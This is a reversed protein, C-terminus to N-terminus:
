GITALIMFSTKGARTSRTPDGEIRIVDSQRLSAVADNFKNVDVIEGAITVSQSKGRGERIKIETILASDGPLREALDKLVALLSPRQLLDPSVRAADSLVHNRLEEMALMTQTGGRDNAPRGQKVIEAEPFTTACLDWIQQGLRETEAVNARYEIVCQGIYGALVLALLAGSFALRSVLGRVASAPALPGKLFEFAVGGGAAAVAVGAPSEFKSLGRAPADGSEPASVPAVPAPAEEYAVPTPLKSEFEERADGELVVGRLTLNLAVGSEKWSTQFARLSNGIERAVASPRGLFDAAGYPLGRFFVLRRGNLVTLISDEGRVHVVAHLGATRRGSLWLTALGAVDLSIGEPAVGAARMAEVQEAIRAHPLGVALVQTEAGSEDTVVYDVILDDLPVALFPELEFPVAAAVRRRGKFPVKLARAIGQRCEVSLVFVAPRKKLQSVLAAVADTLGQPRDEPATYAARTEHTELVVPQRGGTKVVVLRVEDGHFEFAGIRAALKM